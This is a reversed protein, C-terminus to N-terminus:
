KTIINAVKEDKIFIKDRIADKIVDVESTYGLHKNKKRFEKISEVLSEPLSIKKYNIESIIIV